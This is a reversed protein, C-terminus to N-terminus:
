NRLLNDFIFAFVMTIKDATIKNPQPTVRTEACGQADTGKLAQEAATHIFFILMSIM